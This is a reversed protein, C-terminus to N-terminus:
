SNAHLLNVNMRTEAARIGQYYIGCGGGGPGAVILGYAVHLAYMPGGSDGKKGCSSSRGLHRVTVGDYTVTVGLHTVEGCDSRGFSAGTSCIRMGVVSKNDSAIHYTEDATTDPGSTVNVWAKPNWGVVNNIRMIAMDGELWWYWHHIPGVVHPSGDTFETSWNDVLAGSDACHGATFQYLKEDVKSKAIFSGTCGGGSNTIRIGGRLPKDCWPYACALSAPPDQYSAVVLAAGLRTRAEAVLAQQRSTLTGAAPLQLEVRNLDPRLGASLPWPAGANVDALQGGLWDNDRELATMPYAVGVLDYGDTLGLADAAQRVVTEADPDVGGAVGVKIRDGDRVDVWVGGSRDGLGAAVRESLDPALLQWGLRQQAEALSIGRERAFGPAEVDFRPDDSLAPTGAPAAGAAAPFAVLALGCLAVVTAGALRRLM